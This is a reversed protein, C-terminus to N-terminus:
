DHKICYLLCKNIPRFEAATHASGWQRTSDFDIRASRFFSNPYTRQGIYQVEAFPGSVDESHIIEGIGGNLRRGADQQVSGVTRTSGNPDITNRTDYGRIFYGRLDPLTTSGLLSYLAPYDTASYASGNCAFYGEPANVGYFTIVTGVPVGGDDGGSGGGSSQDRLADLLVVWYNEDTGPTKIGAPKVPGNDGVCWYLVGNYLAICANANYNLETSYYAQGGSQQWFLQATAMYLIGNFDLRNPAIGGQSLPRQTEPPFGAQLSARGTGANADPIITKNGTNAFPEEFYNAPAILDAM